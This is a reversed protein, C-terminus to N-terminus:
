LRDFYSQLIIAAAVDDDGRQKKAFSFERKLKQAMKTSMREDEFLVEVGLSGIADVFTQWAQTMTVDGSLSVPQGIIIKQIENEGIIKKLKDRWNAIDGKDGKDGLLVIDFPSAVKVEDGGIALGIKNKGWDIGLYNM